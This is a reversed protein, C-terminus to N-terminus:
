KFEKELTPERRYRYERLGKKTRPRFHVFGANTLIRAVRNFARQTWDERPIGLAHELVETIAVDARGDLWERVPREWLDVVFRAAQEAAALAELEPTELWWSAGGKFRHVAEAWLQNRARDLGDRDIMGHCTVPWLRRAGTPDKLYGGVPPNITAAFVVQRPLSVIHKGWPPRFRDHRRSIFAKTSATSARTLADMEAIEAILVGVMELAADKSAIHSLRDTFWEDRIALTRLAESKLRGQPGEFIILNDAKCGPRYIRAVGSILYRPGIARIYATDEAHFYDILWTDLRQVGDWELSEFHERV